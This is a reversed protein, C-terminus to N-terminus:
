LLKKIQEFLAAAEGELKGEIAALRAKFEDLHVTFNELAGHAALDARCQAARAADAIHEAFAKTALDAGTDTTGETKEIPTAAPNDVGKATPEDDVQENFQQRNQKAM